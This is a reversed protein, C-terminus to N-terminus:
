GQLWPMPPCADSTSISISSIEFSFRRQVFHQGLVRPRGSSTISASVSRLRHKVAGSAFSNPRTLSTRTLSALSFFVQPELLLLLLFAPM